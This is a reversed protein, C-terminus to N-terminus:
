KAVTSTTTTRTATSTEAALGRLPNKVRCAPIQAMVYTQLPVEVEIDQAVIEKATDDAVMKLNSTSEVTGMVIDRQDEPTREKDALNEYHCIMQVNLKKPKGNLDKFELTPQKDGFQAPRLECAQLLITGFLEPGGDMQPMGYQLPMVNLQLFSIPAAIEEGKVCYALIRDRDEWRNAIDESFKEVKVVASFGTPCKVSDKPLILDNQDAFEILKNTVFSMRKKVENKRTYFRKFTDLADRARIAAMDIKKLGKHFRAIHGRTAALSEPTQGLLQKQIGKFAENHEIPCNINEIPTSVIYKQEQEQEQGWAHASLLSLGLTLSALTVELTKSRTKM